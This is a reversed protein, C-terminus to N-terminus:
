SGDFNADQQISLWRFYFYGLYLNNHSFIAVICFYILTKLMGELLTLVYGSMFCYYPLFDSLKDGGANLSNSEYYGMVEAFSFRCLAASKDEFQALTASHYM